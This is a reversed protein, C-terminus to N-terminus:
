LSEQITKGIINIKYPKSIFAGAGLSQTEEIDTSNSYGSIIIAKQGPHIEVIKEYTEKGNMGKGLIMDIIILDVYNSRLYEIAEEGSSVAVPLYCLLSLINCLLERQVPEDDIILIKEKNGTYNTYPMEETETDASRAVMPIYLNFTTGFNGTSIDIYGNHDEITNWVISLGLGTGSRGLFKKTYFPEFIRDLDQKTIGIGNDTITLVAYDGININHYNSIPKDLFQRSSSITIVGNSNVAEYSNILLNMISKNIHVPSCNIMLVENTLKTNLTVNPNQKKLYMYEPSVLIDAIFKNFDCAKKSAAVGRAVTLLDAVIAAAREGSKMIISLPKRLTSDPPLSYMLVEPYTIIGSLINNLDHAVGGAMLGIAEIKQSRHLKERLKNRENEADKRASIDRWVTHIIRKDHTSIATLSVDVPIEKGKKTKHVWEFICTGKEYTIDLLEKAKIKSEKGDPQYEPSLETPHMNIMESKNAYGLMKVAAENCDVFKYDEIILMADVSKEFFIRYKDNNRYDDSIKM